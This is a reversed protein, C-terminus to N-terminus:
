VGVRLRRHTFLPISSFGRHMPPDEQSPRRNRSHRPPSKQSAITMVVAAVEVGVASGTPPNAGCDAQNVTLRAHLM